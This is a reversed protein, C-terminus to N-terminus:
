NLCLSLLLSMREDAQTWKNASVRQRWSYLCGSMLKTWKDASVRQRRVRQRREFAGDGDKVIADLARQQREQSKVLEEVLGIVRATRDLPNPPERFFQAAGLGLAFSIACGVISMRTIRSPIHENFKTKM